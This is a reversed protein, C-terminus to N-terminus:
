ITLRTLPEGLFPNDNAWGSEIWRVVEGWKYLCVRSGEPKLKRIYGAAVWKRFVTRSVFIRELIQSERVFSDPHLIVDGNEVVKKPFYKAGV